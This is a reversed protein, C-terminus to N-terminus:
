SRTAPLDDPIRVLLLPRDCSSVLNAGVSGTWLAGLGSRGHTAVVIISADSKRAAEAVMQAPDGRLIQPSATAGADSLRALVEVLYTASAVAELNLAADTASPVLRAVAAEDGALTGATPVVRVVEIHSGCATALELTMPLAVEAAVTGDLALLLLTLRIPVQMDPRAILVPVDARKLVQQAISGWVVRRPGSRGHTCLAIVDVQLEGAHAAVSLAVDNEEVDHVHHEVKIDPLLRASLEQLYRESEPVTTLHPEGHVSRPPRDEIIHLLIVTASTCQALAVVLPLISEAMQSGDLPVLIRKIM